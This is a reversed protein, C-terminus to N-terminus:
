TEEILTALMKLALAKKDGPIEKILEVVKLQDPDTIFVADDGVLESLSMNLMKAYIRIQRMNVNRYGNIQRSVMSEILDLEHAMEKFTIKQKKMADRAIVAWKPIEQKM